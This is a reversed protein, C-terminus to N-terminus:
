IQNRIQAYEILICKFDVQVAKYLAEFLYKNEYFSKKLVSIVCLVM